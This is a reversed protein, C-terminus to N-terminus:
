MTICQACAYVFVSVCACVCLCVCVCVGVCVHLCVWVCVSVSVCMYLYQCLLNVVCVSWLACVECLFVSTVECVGQM